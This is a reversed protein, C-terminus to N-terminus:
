RLTSLRFTSLFGTAPVMYGYYYDSRERLTYLTLVSRTRQELLRVKDADGRKEFLAVADELPVLQKTIPSNEAVLTRMHAELQVLEEDSFPDRQPLICYFGGDPVAYSVNVTTGSWLENIATSLLLVLSRRYIRGGDSTNLLVPDLTGDQYVEYNLERLKANYVAAMAPASFREPHLTQAHEVFAQIPTGVAGELVLGDVFTVRVQKRPESVTILRSTTM